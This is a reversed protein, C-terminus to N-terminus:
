KQLSSTNLMEKYWKLQFGFPYNALPRHVLAGADKLGKELGFKVYREGAHIEITKGRLVSEKAALEHLVQQSWECCRAAPLKNLTLDYPEIEDDPVLLGYKASLIYWSCGLQEAYARRFNWLPSIYLDKAFSKYDRKKKVCGVLVIQPMCNRDM